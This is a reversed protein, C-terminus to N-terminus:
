VLQQTLTSGGQVKKYVLTSITARLIGRFDVAGHYYFDRDEIAITAKQLNKPIESLPIFTQNKNAYITYLLTNNRDFIQTSQPMQSSNLKTPSPLDKLIFVAISLLLVFIVLAFKWSHFHLKMKM